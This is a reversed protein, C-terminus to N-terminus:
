WGPLGEASAVSEVHKQFGDVVEQPTVDNVILKSLAGLLDGYGGPTLGSGPLPTVPGEDYRAKIEQMLPSAQTPDTAGELVPFTGSEDIYTQYYDGTVFTLFDLAAAERASDGTKPLAYVGIVGPQVMVGPKEAGFHTFGVTKGLLEGDGGAQELYVPEINSHIAQYAAEGSYVRAVSDEFTSTTIDSNACGSDLLSKYNETGALLPSDPGDITSTRDVVQADWDPDMESSTEMYPVAFLPWQSGGSEAITTVGAKSLVACQALLEDQTTAPELGYQELVAKNYYLGWVEPFSTIATYIEGDPGFGGTAYIDGARGVFKQDTLPTFNEAPNYQSIISAGGNMEMIDPRDGTAWKTLEAAEFGDSSIPVLELTNGSEKEYASYMDLVAQPDQSNHWVTLTVGGDASSSPSSCGVLAAGTLGLIAALGVLQKSRQRAPSSHQHSM